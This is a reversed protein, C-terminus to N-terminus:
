FFICVLSLRTSLASIFIKLALPFVTRSLGDAIEVGVFIYCTEIEYIEHYIKRLINKEPVFTYIM